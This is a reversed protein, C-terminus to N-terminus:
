VVWEPEVGDAIGVAHQDHVIADHLLEVGRLRQQLFLLVAQKGRQPRLM